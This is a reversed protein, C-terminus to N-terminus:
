SVKSGFLTFRSNSKQELELELDMIKEELDANEDEKEQLAEQLAEIKSQLKTISPDQGSSLLMLRKNEEQLQLRDDDINNITSCYARSLFVLSPLATRSISYKKAISSNNDDNWTKSIEEILECFVM